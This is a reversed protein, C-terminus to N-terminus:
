AVKKEQGTRNRYRRVAEDAADACRNVFGVSDGQAALGSGVRDGEAVLSKYTVKWIDTEDKSM